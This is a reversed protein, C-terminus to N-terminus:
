EQHTNGYLLTYKLGYYRRRNGAIVDPNGYLLTYKLGNIVPIDKSLYGLKWVIIYIKFKKRDKEHHHHFNKNGYLLTYKLCVM